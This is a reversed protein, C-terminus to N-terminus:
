CQAQVLRGMSAYRLHTHDCAVTWFVRWSVALYASSGGASCLQATGVTAYCMVPMWQGVHRAVCTFHATLDCPTPQTATHLQDM